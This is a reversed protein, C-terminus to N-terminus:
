RHPGRLAEALDSVTSSGPVEIRPLSLRNDTLTAHRGVTTVAYGYGSGGVLHRVAPDVDGYPYALAVPEVGLERLIAARSRAAEQVIETNTLATLYPHTATHSGIAVGADALGRLADWGLLEVSEGYGADWENTGGVRDTVVFLTADLGSERLLPWAHTLFDACGDDFTLMVRRGPLPRRLRMAEGVEDFTATRYGEDRLHRLHAQFRAPTIRYRALAESGTDDVRHYMLIPLDSTATSDRGARVRRLRALTRRRLSPQEREGARPLDVIAGPAYRVRQHPGTAQLLPDGALRAAEILDPAAASPLAYARSAPGGIELAQRRALVLEGPAAAERGAGAAAAQLRSRLSPGPVFPTGLLGERVATVALEVGAARVARAILVDPDVVGDGAHVRVAGVPAGGITVLAARGPPLAVPVLEGSLEIPADSPRQGAQARGRGAPVYFRRLPWTPRDFLEQLFVAWGVAGHLVTSEVATGAPVRGVRTEGRLVDIEAGAGHLELQPLVDHELFRALVTWALEGAIADALVPAPVYGDCVPLELVGLAEGDLAIRCVLRDVGEPLVLDAIPSTVDQDHGATSGIRIASGRPAAGLIRKQLRREVRTALGPSVTVEEAAALFADVAPGLEDLHDVWDSPKLCRPLVASSFLCGAVTDPDAPIPVPGRPPELLASADGGAGIVLGGTWCAHYLRNTPLDDATLGHAHTASEGVRPDPRRARGIVELGDELMRPGDLSASRPRMRYLALVEPLAGFPRGFRTIRLWLDWDECTTLGEDFAGVSRVVETPVVCAHIPFLCHRAFDPFLDGEALAHVEDVVEGTPTLRAWGCHVGVLGPDRELRVAAREYLTPRILDDADLFALLPHRAAAIGTNRAAGVGRGPGTLVRVRPDADAIARALDGTGDTSADDVVLAEWAEHVQAQLSAITERLTEAANRAPIVVSVHV